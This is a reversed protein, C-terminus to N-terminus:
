DPMGWQEFGPLGKLIALIKRKQNSLVPEMKFDYITEMGRGPIENRLHVNLSQSFVTIRGAELKFKDHRAQVNNGYTFNGSGVPKFIFRDVRYNGPILTDVILMDGELPLKFIAEHVTNGSAEDVIEYIYYFGHRSYLTDNTVQVPFVLLTQRDPGPPEIKLGTCSGLLCLLISVSSALAFKDRYFM